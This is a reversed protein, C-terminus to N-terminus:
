TGGDTEGDTRPQFETTVEWPGGAARRRLAAEARWFANRDIDGTPHRPKSGASMAWRNMEKAAELLAERRAKEEARKVRGAWYEDSNGEGVGVRVGVGVGAGVQVEALREPGLM